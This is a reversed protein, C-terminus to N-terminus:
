MELLRRKAHPDGREAAAHAAARAMAHVRPAKREIARRLADAASCNHYEGGPYSLEVIVRHAAGCHRDELQDDCKMVRDRVAELLAAVAPHNSRPRFHPAVATALCQAVFDAAVRGTLAESSTAVKPALAALVDLTGPIDGQRQLGQLCNACEMTGVKHPGALIQGALYRLAHESFPDSSRHLVNAVNVFSLGKFCKAWGAVLDPLTSASRAEFIDENIRRSENVDRCVGGMMRMEEEDFEYSKALDEPTLPSTSVITAWGPKSHAYLNESQLVKLQAIQKMSLPEDFVLPPQTDGKAM